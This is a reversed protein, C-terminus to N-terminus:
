SYIGGHLKEEGLLDAAFDGYLVTGSDPWYQASTEEGVEVLAYYSMMVVVACNCDYIMKWFFNRVTSQM